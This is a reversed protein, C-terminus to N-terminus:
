LGPGLASFASSSNKWERWHTPHIYVPAATRANIWGHLVRRCPFVLAHMQEVDRVAVELDRDFPASAIAQWEMLVYDPREKAGPKIEMLKSQSM